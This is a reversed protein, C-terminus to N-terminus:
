LVRKSEDKLLGEKNVVKLIDNVAKMIKPVLVSLWEVLSEDDSDSVRGSEYLFAHAVEHIIVEKIIEKKEGQELNEPAVDDTVVKIRKSYNRCEGGNGDSIQINERKDVTVMYPTGLVEIRFTM